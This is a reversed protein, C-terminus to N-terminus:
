RDVYNWDEEEVAGTKAPAYATLKVTKDKQKSAPKVPSEEHEENAEKIATKQLM